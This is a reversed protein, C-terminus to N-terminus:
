QRTSLYVSTCGYRSASLLYATENVGEGGWWGGGGCGGVGVDLRCAKGRTDQRPDITHGPWSLRQQQQQQQHKLTACLVCHALAFGQLTHVFSCSHHLSGAQRSTQPDGCAQWSLTSVQQAHEVASYSQSRELCPLFKLAIFGLCQQTCM